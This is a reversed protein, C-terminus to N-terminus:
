STFFSVIESTIERFVLGSDGCVALDEFHAADDDRVHQMPQVQEWEAIWIVRIRDHQKQVPVGHVFWITPDCGAFGPM